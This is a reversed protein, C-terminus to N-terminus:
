AKRLEYYMVAGIAFMQLVPELTDVLALRFGAHWATAGLLVSLMLAGGGLYILLASPVGPQPQAYRLLERFFYLALGVLIAYMFYRYDQALREDAPSFDWLGHIVVAGILVWAFHPLWKSNGVAMWLALGALGTMASHAFNATIFRAWVNQAGEGAFYNINELIAFGLGVSAATALAQAATAKRLVLLLPAFLLLKALEERLGIGSICYLIDSFGAEFDVEGYLHHQITEFFFTLAISVVGLGFGLLGRWWLRVMVGAGVHFILFWFVGCLGAMVVWLKQRLSEEIYHWSARLVGSWDGAAAAIAKAETGFWAGPELVAARWGPQHYLRQLKSQWNRRLCLELARRQCDAGTGADTAGREYAALATEYEGASRLLEGYMSGIFGSAPEKAAAEAFPALDDKDPRAHVKWLGLFDLLLASEDARLFQRAAAIRDMGPVDPLVEKKDSTSALYEEMWKRSMRAEELLRVCEQRSTITRDALFERVWEGRRGGQAEQKRIEEARWRSIGFAVLLGATLVVLVVRMLFRPERSLAAIRKSSFSM